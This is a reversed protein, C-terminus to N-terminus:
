GRDCRGGGYTVKGFVQRGFDMFSHQYVTLTRGAAAEYEAKTVEHFLPEAPTSLWWQITM